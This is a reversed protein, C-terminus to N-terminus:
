RPPGPNVVITSAFSVEHAIAVGDGKKLQRSEMTKGDSTVIHTKPTLEITVDAKSDLETVVVSKLDAAVSKVHGALEQPKVTVFIATAVEGSFRVRVAEGSTVDALDILRGDATVVATSRLLPVKIDRNTGREDVTLTRGDLDVREVVGILEAQNVVIEDAIGNHLEIGVGDGRKIGKLSLPRGGISVMETSPSVAIDFQRGTTRERLTFRGQGVDVSM